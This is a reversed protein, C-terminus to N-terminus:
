EFEDEGEMELDSSVQDAKEIVLRLANNVREMFMIVAYAMEDITDATASMVETTQIQSQTPQQYHDVPNPELPQRPQAQSTGSASDPQPPRDIRTIEPFRPLRVAPQQPDSSSRQRTSADFLGEMGPTQEAMRRAMELVQDRESPDTAERGSGAETPSLKPLPELEPAPEPEVELPAPQAPPESTPAPEVPVRPLDSGLERDRALSDRMGEVERAVAATNLDRVPDQDFGTRVPTQDPTLDRDPDSDPSFDVPAPQPPPDRRSFENVTDANHLMSGVDIQFSTSVVEDSPGAMDSLRQELEQQEPTGTRVPDPLRVPEMFKGGVGFGYQESLMGRLTQEVDRM